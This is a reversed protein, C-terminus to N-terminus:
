ESFTVGKLNTTIPSTANDWSSGNDTSRVIKGGSGVGVFTNNGLTIGYLYQSIGSTANNWSSGNDTSRIIKGGSGVAMFLGSVSSPLSPSTTFSSDYQNSMANGLVDKVGTTV